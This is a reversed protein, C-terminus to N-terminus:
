YRGVSKVKHFGSIPELGVLKGGLVRGRRFAELGVTHGRLWARRDGSGRPYPCHLASTGSQGSRLGQDYPHTHNM